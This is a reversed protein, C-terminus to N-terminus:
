GRHQVKGTVVSYVHSIWGEQRRFIICLRATHTFHSHTDANTHNDVIYVCVTVTPCINRFWSMVLSACSSIYVRCHRRCAQKSQLDIIQGAIESSQRCIEMRELPGAPTFQIKLTLWFFGGQPSTAIKGFRNPIKWSFKVLRISTGM